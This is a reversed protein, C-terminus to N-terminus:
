RGVSLAGGLDGLAEALCSRQYCRSGRDDEVRGHSYSGVSSRGNLSIQSDQVRPGGSEQSKPSLFRRTAATHGDAFGRMPLSQSTSGQRGTKGISTKIPGPGPSSGSGRLGEVMWGGFGNRSPPARSLQSVKVVEDRRGLILPLDHQSSRGHWCPRGIGRGDAKVGGEMIRGYGGWM